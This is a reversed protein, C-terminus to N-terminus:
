NARRGSMFERICRAVYTIQEERLEPYMPLSLVEDAARESEPFDGRAHGLGRFCEQQHLCVPYYIKTAVGASKLHAALADRRGGPVRITYQHYTHRNHASEAPTVVGSGELRENYRAANARRAEIWGDLRRLKVALVAAQLADLRFNGGVFVHHYEREAGHVRTMRCRRALDDDDTLIMGGDGFGGLNKTPFFSLCTMDAMQGVRRGRRTAGIAQAADEIVMVQHRAAIERIAEMEAPQGFLDVPMIARTRPTMAQEVRAPDINFSDARIDAFVPRAGLRSVTGATAFFTFPPLIVEAGPGVCAVMLAALLADTGSSVGIAHRVGCYDAVDREFREVTEGLIFRQTECVGRMAAQVDDRITEYQAVLDLLPVNM